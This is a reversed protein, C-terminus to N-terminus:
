LRMGDGFPNAESENHKLATPLTPEVKRNLVQFVEGKHTNVEIIGKEKDKLTYDKPHGDLGLVVLDAGNIGTQLRCTKGQESEIQIFATQGNKRSASVLFAGKARLNIFSAEQWTSPCGWFIRIRDGWDQMYFEHLSSVAALPTEIVPGSENYLTNPRVYTSFFVKMQALAGDGDGKSALMAAKGTRSYGQNGNWRGVSLEMKPRDVPNDWDLMHYPYIMFLHSYHRHNTATFEYKDSVKFGTKESYPFDTLNALFDKWKGSMPDNMRYTSDIDILTRLGWRLNSLDYNTNSGSEDRCYEPSATSPLGYKGNPSTTRIHFFYNVASKLLPFLREKLQVTDAYAMCQQWYYFLTWTLNGVEYQNNKVTTPSLPALMNYTSTRPMVRSDTWDEQGPIDTVNRTLNDRNKWFADWLPQELQGLNAKTLWSYTLQINLNMWIGPWATDYTPWVGQLDVIPKGERATSAFKYYQAWYFSEFKSDPMSVFAAQRYFHHWWERHTSELKSPKADFGEAITNRATAIAKDLSAEQSVTAIIRRHRRTALSKWAVVYYRVIRSFSTDAALPQILFHYAGDTLTYSDPNSKRRSNLYNSPIDKGGFVVRTSIAQQPVFEWKYDRESGTADTEFVILDKNAHVYTKFRIDGKDTALTGCTQADYLSLRMREDKVQGVTSLTFYGIPLRASNYLNYPSRAETVDSRGVNLRYVNEKLKYFNTGLLGNGMLAGAYYGTKRGNHSHSNTPDATIVTWLM